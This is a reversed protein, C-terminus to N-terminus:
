QLSIKTYSISHGLFRKSLQKFGRPKDSFYFSHEPAGTKDGLNKAKLISKVERAITSASDILKVEEGVVEQIADKLLPYHTCGLILTDMGKRKLSLLYQILVLEVVKPDAKEEAFPVLLPCSKSHVKM